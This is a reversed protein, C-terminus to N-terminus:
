SLLSIHCYIDHDNDNSNAKTVGHDQDLHSQRPTRVELPLSSEAYSLHSVMNQELTQSRRGRADCCTSLETRPGISASPGGGAVGRGVMIMMMMLILLLLLLLLLLM